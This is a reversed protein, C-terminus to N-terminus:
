PPNGSDPVQYFSFTPVPKTSPTIARDHTSRLRSSLRCLHDWSYTTRVRTTARLYSTTRLGSTPRLHTLWRYSTTRSRPHHGWTAHCCTGSRHRGYPLTSSLCPIRPLFSLSENLLPIATAHVRNRRMRLLKCHRHPLCGMSLADLLLEDHQPGCHDFDQFLGITQL